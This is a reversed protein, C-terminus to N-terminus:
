PSCPRGVSILETSVNASTGTIRCRPARHHPECPMPSETPQFNKATEPCTSFGPTYQTGIPVVTRASM